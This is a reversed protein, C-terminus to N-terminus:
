DEQSKIPFDFLVFGADTSAAYLTLKIDNGNEDKTIHYGSQTGPSSNNPGLLPYSFVASKDTKANFIELAERVNSGNTIDYVNFVVPDTTARGAGTMILYREQNFTFVRADVGNQPVADSALAYSQVASESVLRIPSRYGTLIYDSTNEVKTMTMFPTLGPQPALSIPDSLTIYNTVKLRFIDPINDNGANNSGFYMYGNGNADLSVSMNDGYRTGKGGYNGTVFNGIEQPAATPDTWHHIRITAGLNALYTHGNVLAGAYPAPVGTMNLKIPEIKNDKLDDVKLLHPGTSTRTVILVHNGDYGTWRTNASIFDPYKPNGIDNATYDHYTPKEFDAGFVPLNLRLTVQYERFRDNNVVKVIQSNRTVGGAFNFEYAEKDLRAGNSMVADFRIADFNTTTDIRPFTVTKAVEDIVGEIVQDGNPGANVIKISELVVKDPSEVNEPYKKTCSVYFVIMLSALMMLSKSFNIQLNM